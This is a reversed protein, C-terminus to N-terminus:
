KLRRSYTLAEPYRTNLYIICIDATFCPESGDQIYGFASSIITRWWEFVLCGPIEICDLNFNADIFTTYAQYYLRYKRVIIAYQILM